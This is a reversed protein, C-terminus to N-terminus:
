GGLGCSPIGTYGISTVKADTLFASKYYVDSSGAGGVATSKVILNLNDGISPFTSVVLFCQANDGSGAYYPVGTLISPLKEHLKVFLDNMDFAGSGGSNNVGTTFATFTGNLEFGTVTQQNNEFYETHGNSNDFGALVVTYCTASELNDLDACESTLNGVDTAGLLTAGPPLVFSEGASLTISKTICNLTAM